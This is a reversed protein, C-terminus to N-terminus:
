LHPRDAIAACILNRRHPPAAFVFGFAESPPAILV